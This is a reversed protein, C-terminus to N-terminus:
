HNYMQRRRLFAAPGGELIDLVCGKTADADISGRDKTKGYDNERFMPLILESDGLVAINANHTVLIVQRREKIARLTAVISSFIFANDLDDEPQDIVLPVNSEALMAITLLITHRQGDSLQFVPIEKLPTSKTRVTIIPKPHKALVQLEFLIRWYCLKDVIKEAWEMSIKTREAIEQCKRDLILDAFESPAIRSCVSEILSDSFYTGHMKDQMFSEFDATIGADDYKVFITYDKITAGLNANIGKLQVKRRATMEDRVQKLEARLNKRQERCQKLETVRQEVKAIQTAVSTKQRLLLELGPIDTALGRAKLDALKKAVDDSMRRHAIKLEGALQTLNRACSRLLDNLEQEKKKVAANNTSILAEIALITKQSDQDDTCTGATAVIQDLNRQISSSSWGINYETAIAEISERVTEESALKSKTGIVERLNGDEAVKLKKEIEELSKKQAALQAFATELPNLRSANERLGTVLSDETELLDRLNTHRDLFQQFLDPHKFPDEAVKALEGQGFYEIRFADVPVDVVSRDEKAKVEIDGGRTRVYRYLIGNADECFVTVSDPCNDYDGFEDNLGFAYAIARIATSKGTGRGGIFCNLNDSFRIREEHLFGGTISVGCVRPISHPVSACARVRATPDVLAVRLSNFSLESLKIRTWPKNPDQREFQAMSHADSGQIHALHHRASLGEVSERAAFIKKRENGDPGTEDHDSYWVLAEVTDSELGYLGPSIIIDKKWNQFGPAFADFGTKDRDIHAAISIGGLKEVEAISDAMSKATRTNEAGMEGILDLRSLVKTLADINDPAFYALLHGHATTIEVGPLVLITGPYNNQAHDIARQVNLNSNHDTIAIVSLGQRAASDIIAEPTMTPDKVDHSAGYSHIHLDVSQFRAGNDIAQIDKFQAM